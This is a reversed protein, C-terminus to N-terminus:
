WSRALRRVKRLLFPGLSRAFTETIHGYTDKYVRAGGVVPYCSRASCFFETLDVRHTRRSGRRNAASAATDWRVAERRPMRCAAGPRERGAAIVRRVCAAQAESTLPTDRIVVVQEVTSPLAAWARRFGSIKITGYTKGPPVVVPTLANQSVFVTSVEPHDRFWAVASRYWEECPERLGEPLARVAESFFCGPATVSYGRWRNARAVVDLASRWHLAHSDGVLAIHRRARSRSAGFSCVPSPEEDLRRCAATRESKAARATPVVSRTPNSCPNHLDRAAAGFCKPAAAATGAGVLSAAGALALLLSVPVRM